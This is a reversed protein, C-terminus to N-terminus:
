VDRWVATKIDEQCERDECAERGWGSDAVVCQSCGRSM